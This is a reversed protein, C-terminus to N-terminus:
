ESMGSAEGASWVSIMKQSVLLVLEFYNSTQQETMDTYGQAIDIARRTIRNLIIASPTPDEFIKIATRGPPVDPLDNAV